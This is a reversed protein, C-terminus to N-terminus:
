KLRLPFSKLMSICKTITGVLPFSYINRKKDRSLSALSVSYNRATLILTRTTCSPFSETKLSSKQQQSNLDERGGGRAGGHTLTRQLHGLACGTHADDQVAAAAAFDAGPLEVLVAAQSLRTVVRFPQLTIKPGAESSSGTADASTHISVM